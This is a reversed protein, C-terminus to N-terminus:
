YHHGLELNTAAKCVTIIDIQIANKASLIYKMKVEDVALPMKIPELEIARFGATVNLKTRGIIDIDDAYALFQASM